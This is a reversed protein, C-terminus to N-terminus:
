LTSIPVTLGIPAGITSWGGNLFLDYHTLSAVIPTQSTVDLSFATPSGKALVATAQDIQVFGFDGAAVNVIQNATTGDVFLFRINVDIATASPNYLGLREIYTVGAFAPNIFLDGFVYERAAVTAANTTDGDGNQYEIVSGTVAVNSTFKIGAPQSNILGLDSLSITFQRNPQVTLVRVLDPLDVRAYSATVTITAPTSNTNLFSLSSTVGGGSSVNPIVAATTGGDADGLLGDGGNNALNYSSLAAVIGVNSTIKVGFRGNRAVRGDADINVGGRRLSRVTQQFSSVTGDDYILQVTVSADTNNPNYFVLFDRFNNRDKNVQAFTWTTSLRNTFSEGVSVNFDYHSMTAGLQGTSRIELAYARGREVLSAGSKTSVTIGGRSKPNIIGTAIPTTVQAGSEYRVYVEYSVASDNTNVIPVFEDITSGSFGEPYYLFHTLPQSAIEVTYSGQASGIPEVLVYYIDASSAVSADFNVSATAGPIGAADEAILTFNKNYIKVRGDVLGGSPTKIQVGSRGSAAPVFKFLDTDGGFNIVGGATGFGTRTDLMILTADGFEGANAHDDPGNGGGGGSIRGVVQIAYNGVATAGSSGDNPLVLVFYTEAAATAQFTLTATDGNSIAGPIEVFASNFIQIKPNFTSGATTVRIQVNGSALTTFRFLDTDSSPVIIGTRTGVGTTPALTIVGVSPSAWQGANAYDDVPATAVTVTYAGTLDPQGAGATGAKVQVFYQVNATVNITVTSTGNVAVGSGLLSQSADYVFVNGALGSTPTTVTVTATGSTPAVFRFMDDDTSVEINGNLSANSTFTLPDFSPALDFQTALPFDAINPHDDTATVNVSLNYHGYNLNLDTGYVTIYYEQGATVSFQVRSNTGIGVGDDNAGVLRYEVHGDMPNDTNSSVEWVYVFPNMTSETSTISVTAVEFQEARFKFLDSDGANEIFGTAAYQGLFANLSLPTANAWDGDKVNDDTIGPGDVTVTYSGETVGEGDVRIYFRGGQQVSTNVVASGGTNGTATGAQLGGADLITVIPRLVPNTATVTVRLTGRNVAIYSFLDTDDPNQFAGAQVNDIIGSITGNGSAIDTPVATSIALPQNPVFNEIDDIGNSSQTNNIVLEYSGLAHRWDVKDAASGFIERFASEVQIFYTEGAVVPIVIRPDRQLFNHTLNQGTGDQTRDPLIGFQYNDGFGGVALSDDNDSLLEFDNSFVKLRGDLPSNYTRSQPADEQMLTQFLGGTNFVGDVLPTQTLTTQIFQDLIGFTSLRIEVTGTASARFQYLDTDTISEISGLFDRDSRLVGGSGRTGPTRTYDFGALAQRGNPTLLDFARGDGNSNLDLEPAIAWQGEDPVEFIDRINEHFAGDGADMPDEEPMTDAVLAIQYRGTSNGTVEVYYVEGAWLGPMVFATQFGPGATAAPNIAGSPNPFPPAITDNSYIVNFNSDFVRIRSDLFSDSAGTVPDQPLSVVIAVRSSPRENRDWVGQVNDNFGSLAFVSTAPGAEGPALGDVGGKLPLWASGGDLNQDDFKAVHNFGDQGDLQTFDGGAYIVPADSVDFEDDVFATVARVVGNTFSAAVGLDNIQAIFGGGAGDDGAVVMTQTGGTDGLITMAHVPGVMALSPAVPVYTPLDGMAQPFIGTYAAWHSTNAVGTVATFEGGLVLFGQSSDDDAIRPDNWVALANVPGNPGAGVYAFVPVDDPAPRNEADGTPGYRIFNTSTMAPRLPDPATGARSFRGGIFLSSPPDPPQRPQMAPGAGDPDPPQPPQPPDWVTLARVEANAGPIGVIGDDGVIPELFFGGLFGIAFINNVAQGVVNDFNGGIILRPPLDLTAGPADTDYVALALVVDAANGFTLGPIPAWVFRNESPKFVRMAINVTDGNFDTFNGGAVLVTGFDTGAGDPDWEVMARIDGNIASITPVNLPSLADPDLGMGEDAPGAFWWEDADWISVNPSGRGGSNLGDVVLRDANGFNGGTYLARGQNGDDGAYNDLTSVPSVFQFLDTDGAEYIRGRSNAVSFWSRDLVANGDVDTALQAPGFVLPTANTFNPISVPQTDVHDDVSTNTYNAEVFLAFGGDVNRDFGEVVIFYRQGGTLSVELQPTLGNFDDNFAIEAGAENYLHVAPDTLAPYAGPPGPAREATFGVGGAGVVTIFSIGTGQATFQYVRSSAGMPANSGALPAVADARDPNALRTTQDTAIPLAVLDVALSFAGTAPRGAALEDSRVRVFYTSNRAAKFTTFANTLRGAQIDSALTSVVGNADGSNYVDVHTDLVNADDAIAGVTALSDFQADDPSSMRYVVDDQRFAISGAEDGEGFVDSAPDPPDPMPATTNIDYDLTVTDVRLTYNGTATRGAALPTPNARVRIYYTTGATGVFGAWGDPTAASSSSLVGNNAGSTILQYATNGANAKYVEVYTDLTSSLNTGNPNTQTDALVTVFDTARGPTSPMVFRFFDGDDGAAIIGSVGQNAGSLARGRRANTLPSAADLTLADGAAPNFVPPLSPHDGSLLVRSELAEPIFSPTRRRDHRSVGRERGAVRAVQAADVTGTSATMAGFLNALFGSKRMTM